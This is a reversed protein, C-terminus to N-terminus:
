GLRQGHGGGQVREGDKFRVRAKVRKRFQIRVELRFRVGLSLESSTVNDM